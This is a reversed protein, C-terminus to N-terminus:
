NRPYSHTSTYNWEGYAKVAHRKVLSVSLKVKLKFLYIRKAVNVKTLTFQKQNIDHTDAQQSSPKCDTPGAEESTNALLKPNSFFIHDATTLAVRLMETDAVSSPGM